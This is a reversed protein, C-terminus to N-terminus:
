HNEKESRLIRTTKWQKLAAVKEVEDREARRRSLLGYKLMVSIVDKRDRNWHKTGTHM